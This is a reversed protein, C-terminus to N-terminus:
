LLGNAQWDFRSYLRFRNVFIIWKKASLAM